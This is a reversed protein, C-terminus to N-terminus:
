HKHTVEYTIKLSSQLLIPPFRPHVEATLWLRFSAKPHLVNLEQPPLVAFILVFCLMLSSWTLLAVLSYIRYVECMVCMMSRSVSHDVAQKAKSQLTHVKIRTCGCLCIGPLQDLNFYLERDLVDNKSCNKMDMFRVCCVPKSWLKGRENETLVVEWHHSCQCVMWSLTRDREINEM